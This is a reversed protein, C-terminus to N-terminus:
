KGAELAKAADEATAGEPLELIHLLLARFETQTLVRSRSSRVARGISVQIKGNVYGRWIRVDEGGDAHDTGYLFVGADVGRERLASAMLESLKAPEVADHVALRLRQETYPFPKDDPWGRPQQKELKDLAVLQRLAETLAERSHGGITDPLSM